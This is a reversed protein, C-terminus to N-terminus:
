LEIEYLTTQQIPEHDRLRSVDHGESVCLMGQVLIMHSVLLVTGTYREKIKDLLASARDYVDYFTEGGMPVFKDPRTKFDKFKEPYAATAEGYSLGEWSGLSMEILLPEIDIPYSMGSHKRILHATHLARPMPSVFCRDISIGKDAISEGLKIAGNIGKDTLPSNNRGQMRFKTNWFTEGHRTILVRTM